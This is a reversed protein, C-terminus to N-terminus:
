VMSLRTKRLPAPWSSDILLEDEISLEIDVAAANLELHHPTVAKPIAIVGDQRLVWALSIQAPTADHREAVELIAPNMLLNGAQGIPCYAMLPMRATQMWPLLDYEIGREEPNYLVQNTACGGGLGLADLELLDSVDFNSVGWRGIKGAERLREFAEITEELPYQGAWHLLYLDICDTKMRKLSRECAAPIGERSANHPYVKSVLMVEDRRGAIAKGVVEEAGGEGYMEATDILTLGLDIGLQLASVEAEFQHRDEGMQWTGQGIVPVIKDALELTRM